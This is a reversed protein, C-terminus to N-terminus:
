VMREFYYNKRIDLALKAVDPFAHSLDDKRLFREM